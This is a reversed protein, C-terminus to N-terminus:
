SCGAAFQNLFCQFDNINLVPPAVSGDCNAYSSGMTYKNLFCQFDNADLIPPATSGDCNAYCPYPVCMIRAFSGSVNDGNRTFSGGVHLQPHAPDDSVPALALVAGDLGSGIASWGYGDWAQLAGGGPVSGGAVLIPTRTGPGDADFVCWARVQSSPYLASWTTGDWRAAGVSQNLYLSGGAYLQVSAPDAGGSGFTTIAYCDGSLSMGQWAQGDWRAITSVNFSGVRSFHGGVYLQTPAPGPGDPDLAALCYIAPYDNPQTTQFYGGLQVWQTGDWTQVSYDNAAVIQPPNPGPGDFDFTTVAEIPGLMSGAAHWASGDWIAVNTAPSGGAASFVGAVVLKEGSGDDFTAMSNVVASSGTVGGGLPQWSTGDFHAIASCVSSGAHGFSGGAITETNQAGPARYRAIAKISQDFGTAVPLWNTGDWAAMNAVGVGGASTLNSAAILLPPSPGPGDPDFTVLTDHYANTAVMQIGSGLGHWASGNWAAIKSVPVGGASNFSGIAVLEPSGGAAAFVDLGTVEGNNPGYSLGGGLDRWTSGNWAAIGRVPLGGATGFSGGAILEAPAPGNGDPDYVTLAWVYGPSGPETIGSSLAHWSAGDWAAIASVPTGGASSFWGGAILQAPAPGSGDPDYVALSTVLPGNPDGLGSGLTTWHQGDWQAIGHLSQPATNPSSGGVILRPPIPGPGDPDFSALSTPELAFISELETGLREWQSGNWRAVASVYGYPTGPADFSGAVILQAPLPGDGDPDFSLLASVSRPGGPIAHWSTGDWRALTSAITSGVVTFSGGIVLQPPEPGDGDFDFVCAATVEYNAGPVGDAPLYQLTCPQGLAVTSTLLAIAPFPTRMIGSRRRDLWQVQKRLSAFAL